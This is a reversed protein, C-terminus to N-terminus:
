DAWRRLNEAIFRNIRQQDEGGRGEVPLPEGFAFRTKKRSNIRGFDKLLRGNEWADTKLAIPVVPVGSKQALKVGISSMQRPDFVRARALRAGGETLVTKLDQRPNTRTVAVPNRSAMVYKFVPYRLLEEKIVFTVPTFPRIMAPLLLTEMMSMHNGIFVVPGQLQQLHSFGEAEVRVGVSELLSLIEASGAEWCRDDYHGRWAVFGSRLVVRLFNMYFVLSPAIKAMAGCRLEPSRYRGEEITIM